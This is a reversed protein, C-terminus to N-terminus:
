SRVLGRRAAALGTGGVVVIFVGLVALTVGLEDVGAGYSVERFGDLLWRHPSARSVVSLLGGARSIPFFTGGLLGLVLAAAAAYAVAQEATKAVAAVLAALAIAVVVGVLDSSCM